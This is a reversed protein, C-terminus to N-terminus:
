NVEIDGSSTKLKCLANADPVYSPVEIDGSNSKTEFAYKNDSTLELEIDGSSTTLDFLLSSASELEIDGSSANGEISEKAVVNYGSTSGSTTVFRITNAKVGNYDIDGSNAKAYISESESNYLEIDGSSTEVEIDAFSAGNLKISGSSANINANNGSANNACISGSSTKLQLEDAIVDYDIDIDGSSAVINIRDYEKETLYVTTEPCFSIFSINITDKKKDVSISLTDNIVDINHIMDKSDYYEVYCKNSNSKCLRINMSPLDEIDIKNFKSDIEISKKVLDGEGLSFIGAKGSPFRNNNLAFAIACFVCGVVIVCVAVIVAITKKNM